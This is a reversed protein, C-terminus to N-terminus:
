NEEYYIAIPRIIKDGDGLLGLNSLLIDTLISNIKGIDGLGQFDDFGGEPHTKEKVGTVLGLVKLPRNLESIFSLTESPVRYKSKECIALAHEFSFLITNPYNIAGFKAVTNIMEFNSFAESRYNEIEYEITALQKKQIANLPRSKHDIQLDRVKNKLVTLEDDESGLSMVDIAETSTTNKLYEFDIFQVKGEFIVFDGPISSAVETKLHKHEKTLGILRDLLYDGFVKEVLESSGETVKEIDHRTEQLSSKVKSLPIGLDVGLISISETGTENSQSSDQADVKKQIVGREYQALTSNLLEEDFYIYDKIKM